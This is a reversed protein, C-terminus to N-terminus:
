LEVLQAALLAVQQLALMVVMREVTPEVWWDDSEDATWGAKWGALPSELPDVTWVVSMEVWREAM